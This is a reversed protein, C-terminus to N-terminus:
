QRYRYRTWPRLGTAGAVTRVTAPATQNLYIAQAGSRSLDNRDIVLMPAGCDIAVPMAAIVIDAGGCAERLAAPHRVYAFSKGWALTAVCGLRDCRSAPDTSKRAQSVARADGDSRLWMSAVFRAPRPLPLWLKGDALRVALTRGNGSILIDPRPTLMAVVLAAGFGAVGLWRWRRRWICIWVLGLGFLALAAPAMSAVRAAAGDLAAVGRAIGLLADIGAGMLLLPLADAGFPMAVLALLGAPMVLFSVLPIAAMNALLGYIAVRNFHYAAVPGTALGAIATTMIIAGIGIVVRGAWSFRRRDGSIDPASFRAAVWEYFAVLALVAAFSMQFGAAMASEPRLLLVVVAAFGINRVSVAPRDVMIAVLAVAVMIFARETAVSGGALVFYGAAGALAAMAAIKKIPLNLALWSVTALLARLVWFLTGTVLGMHLGSIALLHALGSDRIAALDDPPIGGRRGTLLAEAIAGSSAGIVASVRAGVAARLRQVMQRWRAALGPAPLRATAPNALAFGTAGIGQLWLRRGFDFGGPVVPAPLPTLKALVSIGDGASKKNFKGAVSLRVLRPTERPALGEISAVRITLRRRKGIAEAMEVRGTVMAPGVPARLAITDLAAVRLKGIGAGAVVLVVALVPALLRPSAAACSVSAVALAGLTPALLTWGPETVQSFYWLSGAALFVPIWLPWRDQEARFLAGLVRWFRVMRAESEGSFQSRATFFNM